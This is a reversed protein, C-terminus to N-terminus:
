RFRSIYKDKIAELEEKFIINNKTRNGYVLAFSSNPETILTTKIISLIPTIGSGAAFAVYQKKQKPDLETYFKGVPPMVDIYDGPQLKENAWSSFFGGDMKKVAVRLLGDFPSSCISYTRRVDEGNIKKRVTLSQGQKFQFTDRLEAPVKFTIVVCDETEKQVKEVELSHFHIM